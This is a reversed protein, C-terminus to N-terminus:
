FGGCFCHNPLEGCFPCTVSPEIRREARMAARELMDPTMRTKQYREADAKRVNDILEQTMDTMIVM